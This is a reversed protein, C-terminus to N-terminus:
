TWKGDLAEKWLTVKNDGSSCALMNGTVSWSVRWVPADFTPLSQKSWEGGKETQKWIIVTCDESCSAVMNCPMGSGPAWAVDRVWDRHGTLVRGDLVWGEEGHKFIRVNNDCGGTVLRKVVREGETSGLHSFPAWSVANCGLTCDDLNVTGWADDAKHTMVTVRGDSSACALILGHEHPAWAVSNVSSEATHYHVPTWVNEPSERHVIVQRDYSCSALLVGFKPHAWAVEWVPGDHGTLTAVHRREEGAVDYVRITRDSSCTALRKGYYDFQADHQSLDVILAFGTLSIHM